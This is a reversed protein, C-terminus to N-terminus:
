NPRIRITSIRRKISRIIFSIGENSVFENSQKTESKILYKNLKKLLPLHIGYKDEVIEIKKIDSGILSVIKDIEKYSLVYKENKEFKLIHTFTSLEPHEESSDHIRKILNTENGDVYGYKVMHTWDINEKIYVNDM